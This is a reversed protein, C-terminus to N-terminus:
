CDGAGTFRVRPLLERLRYALPGDSEIGHIVYQRDMLYRKASISLGHVDSFSWLDDAYVHIESCDAVASLDADFSSARRPLRVGCPDDDFNVYGHDMIFWENSADRYRYNIELLGSAQARLARIADGGGRQPSQLLLESLGFQPGNHTLGIYGPESRLTAATCGGHTTANLALEYLAMRVLGSRTKGWLASAGVDELFDAVGQRLGESTVTVCHEALDEKTVTVLPQGLEDSARKEAHERWSRLLDVTYRREDDDILKGHTQCLWIANEISRREQPTRSPDFRPGGSAAATIHAAVGVNSVGSSRSEAPGTTLARCNPASCRGGARKCIQEIVRAPFEDRATM